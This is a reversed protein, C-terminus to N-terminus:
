LKGDTAPSAGCYPNTAHTLEPEKYTTGAEWLQKGTKRDFCLLLRRGAKEIAQTVFIKEGWVIPTSNGRDPLSTKWVVNETTSWKEPLGSESTTGDGNPGRWMPWDAASAISSLLLSFSLILKM